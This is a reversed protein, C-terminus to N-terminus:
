LPITLVYHALTPLFRQAYCISLFHPSQSNQFSLLMGPCHWLFWGLITTPM